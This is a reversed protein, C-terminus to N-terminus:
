NAKAFSEQEIGLVNCVARQTDHSASRYALIISHEFESIHPKYDAVEHVSLDDCFLQEVTIGFHRAIRLAVSVKPERTGNEYRTYAVRSINTDDAVQDQSEGLSERLEFLRMSLNNVM